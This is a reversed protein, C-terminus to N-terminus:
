IHRITVMMLFNLQVKHPYYVQLNQNESQVSKQLSSRLDQHLFHNLLMSNLLM